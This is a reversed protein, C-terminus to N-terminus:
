FKYGECIKLAGPSLSIGMLPSMDLPQKEGTRAEYSSKHGGMVKLHDEDTHQEMEVELYDLLPMGRVPELVADSYETEKDIIIVRRTRFIDKFHGVKKPDRSSPATFFSLVDTHVTAGDLVGSDLDDNDMLFETFRVRGLLQLNLHKQQSSFSMALQRPTVAMSDIGTLDLIGEALIALMLSKTITAGTLSKLTRQDKSFSIGITGEKIEFNKLIKEWKLLGNTAINLHAIVTKGYLPSLDPVLGNESNEEEAQNETSSMTSISIVIEKPPTEAFPEFSAWTMIKQDDSSEIYLSKLPIGRLPEFSEIDPTVKIKKMLAAQVIEQETLSRKKLQEQDSQPQPAQAQEKPVVTFGVLAFSIAATKLQKTSLKDPDVSLNIASNSIVPILPVKNPEKDAKVIGPDVTSDSAALYKSVYDKPHFIATGKLDEMTVKPMGPELSYWVGDIEALVAEHMRDTGDEIQQRSIQIKLPISPFVKSIISILAQARAHCNGKNEILLDHLQASEEDYEGLQEAIINEIVKISPQTKASSSYNEMITGLKRQDAALEEWTIYRELWSVKLFFNGYDFNPLSQDADLLKQWEQKTESKLQREVQGASSFANFFKTVEMKIAMIAAAVVRESRVKEIVIPACIVAGNLAVSVAAAILWRTKDARPSVDPKRISGTGSQKELREPM